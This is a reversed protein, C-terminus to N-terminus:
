GVWSSPRKEIFSRIGERGEESFFYEATVAAAKRLEGRLDPTATLVKIGAQASPGGLKLRRVLDATVEDLHEEYVAASVLGWAEADEATFVDADGEVVLGGGVLFLERMRAPTIRRAVVPGIVAPVVGLRVESFAMEAEFHAVTFDAAAILGLGGGRAAGRVVAVVPKPAEAIDALAEALHAAPLAALSHAAASEKLDAGACFVPGAHDIVVVRVDRDAVARALATRLEAILQISLANRREPANLTITAVAEQARYAIPADNREM